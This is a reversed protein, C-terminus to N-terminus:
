LFSVSAFGNFGCSSRWCNCVHSSFVTAQVSKMKGISM